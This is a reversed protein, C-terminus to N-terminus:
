TGIAIWSVNKAVTAAIPTCDGTATPKWVKLTINAGTWTASVENAAISVDDKLTAVVAVITALGSAVALTGTVASVGRAVKYGAAVGQVLATLQSTDPLPQGGVSLQGEVNLTKASARGLREREAM